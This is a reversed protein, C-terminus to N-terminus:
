SNRKQRYRQCVASIENYLTKGITNETNSIQKNLILHISQKYSKIIAILDANVKDTDELLRVLCDSIQTILPYQFLSGQAKLQLVPYLVRDLLVDDDLKQEEMVDLAEGLRLLFHEADPAFDIDNNEIASQAKAIDDDNFGGDGVKNKLTMDPPLIQTDKDM